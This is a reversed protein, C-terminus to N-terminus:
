SLPLQYSSVRTSGIANSNAFNALHIDHEGGFTPGSHQDSWIASPDYQERLAIKVPGVCGPRHLSFLFTGASVTFETGSCWRASSVGGLVFGNTRKIVTITPGKGDCRSHFDLANWGHCPARYVRELKDTEGKDLWTFIQRHEELLFDRTLLEM